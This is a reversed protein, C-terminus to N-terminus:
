GSHLSSANLERVLTEIQKTFEQKDASRESITITYVWEIDPSPTFYKPQRRVTLRKGVAARIMGGGVKKILAFYKGNM